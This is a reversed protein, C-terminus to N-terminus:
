ATCAFEATLINLTVDAEVPLGRLHKTFQGVALAAALNAAYITSKATCPGAHAEAAAFLSTPYHERSAPSAVALIRVVEASMRADVFFRVRDRVAEWILRRTDISDVCVFVADGVDASRRFRGPEQVIEIQSNIRRCLDTTAEVKLRGLDGELFGQPALNEVEVRDFDILQMRPVGIAALQLAVQRGIAGVGIVTVSMAALREAPVTDRQRVYRGSLDHGNM